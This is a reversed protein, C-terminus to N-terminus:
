FAAVHERLIRRNVICEDAINQVVSAMLVGKVEAARSFVRHTELEDLLPAVDDAWASRVPGPIGWLQALREPEGPLTGPVESNNMRLLMEFWLAKASWSCAQVAEDSFWDRAYLYM